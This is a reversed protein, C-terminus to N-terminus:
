NPCKSAWLYFAYLFRRREMVSIHFHNCMVATLPQSSSTIEVKEHMTERKWSCFSQFGLHSCPKHSKYASLTKSSLRPAFPLLLTPWSIIKIWQLRSSFETSVWLCPPTQKDWREEKGPSSKHNRRYVKKKFIGSDKAHDLKTQARPVKGQWICLWKSVCSKSEPCVSKQSNKALTHSWNIASFCSADPHQTDQM